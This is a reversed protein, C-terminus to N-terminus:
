LLYLSFCLYLDMCVWSCMNLDTGVGVDGLYLLFCLHWDGGVRIFCICHSVCIYTNRYLAMRLVSMKVTKFIFHFMQSSILYIESGGGGGQSLIMSM